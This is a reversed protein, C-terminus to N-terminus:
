TIPGTGQCQEMLANVSALYGANDLIDGTAETNKDIEELASL